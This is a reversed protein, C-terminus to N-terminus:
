IPQEVLTVTATEDLDAPTSRYLQCVGILFVAFMVLVIFCITATIVIFTSSPAHSPYDHARVSSVMSTSKQFLDEPKIALFSEIFDMKNM